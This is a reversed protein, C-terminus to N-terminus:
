HYKRIREESSRLLLDKVKGTKAFSSGKSRPLTRNGAEAIGAFM